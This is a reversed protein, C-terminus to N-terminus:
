VSLRRPQHQTILQSAHPPVPTEGLVKPLLFRNSYTNLAVKEDATTTFRLQTIHKLEKPMPQM